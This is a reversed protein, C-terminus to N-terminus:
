KWYLFVIWIIVLSFGVIALVRRTALKEKMTGIYDKAWEYKNTLEKRETNSEKLQEKRALAHEAYEKIQTELVQTRKQLTEEKSSEKQVKVISQKTQNPISNEKTRVGLKILLKTFDTYSVFKKSWEKKTHIETKHKKLYNYVTKLSVGIKEAIQRPLLYM